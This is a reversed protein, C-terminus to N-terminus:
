GGVRVEFMSWRGRGYNGVKAVPALRVRALMEAARARLAATAPANATFNTVAIRGVLGPRDASRAVSSRYTAIAAALDDATAADRRLLIVDPRNPDSFRLIEARLEPRALSDVLAVAVNRLRGAQAHAETGVFMAAVAILGLVVTRSKM